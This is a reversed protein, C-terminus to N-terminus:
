RGPSGRLVSDAQAPFDTFIGDVGTAKFARLEAAADGQWM